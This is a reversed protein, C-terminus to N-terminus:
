IDGLQMGIVPFIGFTYGKPAFGPDASGSFGAAGPDVPDFGWAFDVGLM